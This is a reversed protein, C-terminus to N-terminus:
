IYENKVGIQKIFKTAGEGVLLSSGMIAADGYAGSKAAVVMEIVTHADSALRVTKYFNLVGVFCFAKLAMWIAVNEV